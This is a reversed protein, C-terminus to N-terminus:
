VMQSIASSVAQEQRCAHYASIAFSLLSLMVLGMLVSPSLLQFASLAAAGLVLVTSMGMGLSASRPYTSFFSLGSESANVNETMTRNIAVSTEIPSGGNPNMNEQSSVVNKPTRSNAALFATQLKDSSTDKPSLYSLINSIM